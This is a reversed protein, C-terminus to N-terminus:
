HAEGPLVLDRAHEAVAAERRDAAPGVLHHHADEGLQHADGLAGPRLSIFIRRSSTALRPSIARRMRRVASRRPMSVTATYECGSASASCTRSAVCAQAMPPKAGASEYRRM